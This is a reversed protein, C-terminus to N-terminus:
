LEAAVTKLATQTAAVIKDAEARTLCLPPALGLIDGQPMARGIVGEELLKGVIRAGVKQAPDFYTRDTKDAVFEVACLLGEGRVEGVNPHDGVADTLAIWPTTCVIRTPSRDAAAVAIVGPRRSAAAPSVM